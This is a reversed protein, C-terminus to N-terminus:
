GPWHCAAPWLQPFNLLPPAGLSFGFRKPKLQDYLRGSRGTRLRLLDPPPCPKPILALSTSNGYFTPKPAQPKLNPTSRETFVSIQFDRVCLNGLHAAHCCHDAHGQLPICARAEFFDVVLARFGLAGFGSGLARGSGSGRFTLNSMSSM